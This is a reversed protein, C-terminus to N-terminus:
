FTIVSRLGIAVSNNYTGGPNMIFQVDPQLYFWPNIQVRYFAELVTESGTRNTNDYGVYNLRTAFSGNAVAIGVRDKDRKPIPGIYHLGGGIYKSMDNKNSPSMGAQGFVTLGQMDNEDNKNEKYVMQEFGIYAGFNRNFNNYYTSGDQNLGDAVGMGTSDSMEWAGVMYRGPLKKIMPKVEIETINFPTNYRSYIGNRISLWEKPNIEAMFGFAQDPYTPMPTTPNISFATNMFDWGSNLYGFDINADQKGVKLRVKDNFLKQQYWYESMQNMQRWDWGDLGMWDGMAGNNGNAGSIGYGTKKQYLAYFTGGKWMKAKETDLTVSLNFLSYGKTSAEDNAGGGTKTFPTYLLSSNVTVGHDEFIPRAGFWKGTAYDGDLWQKVVTKEEVAQTKQITDPNSKNVGGKLDMVPVTKDEYQREANPNDIGYQLLRESNSSSSNDILDLNGTPKANNSPADSAILANNKPLEFIQNQDFVIEKLATSKKIQNTTNANNQANVPMTSFLATLLVASLLYKKM